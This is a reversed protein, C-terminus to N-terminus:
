MRRGLSPRMKSEAGNSITHTGTTVSMSQAAQPRCLWSLHPRRSLAGPVMTCAARGPHGATGVARLLRRHPHLGDM